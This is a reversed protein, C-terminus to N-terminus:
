LEFLVFSLRGDINNKHVSPHILFRHKKGTMKKRKKEQKQKKNCRKLPLITANLDVFAIIRRAHWNYQLILLVTQDTGGRELDDIMKM